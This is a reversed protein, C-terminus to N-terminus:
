DPRNGLSYHSEVDKAPIEVLDSGLGAVAASFGNNLMGDHNEDRFTRVSMDAFLVNAVGRHTTAFARYDQLTQKAWVGWWGAPGTRPTGNAFTPVQM